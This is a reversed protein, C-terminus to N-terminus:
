LSKPRPNKQYTHWYLNSYKKYHIKYYKNIKQKNCIYIFIIAYMWITRVEELEENRFIYKKIFSWNKQLNEYYTKKWYEPKLFLDWNYKSYECYFKM